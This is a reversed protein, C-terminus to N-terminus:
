KESVVGFWMRCPVTTLTVQALSAKRGDQSTVWQFRATSELLIIFVPAAATGWGDRM